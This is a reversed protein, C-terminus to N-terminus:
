VCRCLQLVKERARSEVTRGAYITRLSEKPENLVRMSSTRMRRGGVQIRGGGLMQLTNADNRRGVCSKETAVKHM